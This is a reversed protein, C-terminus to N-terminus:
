SVYTHLYIIIIIIIIIIISSIASDEFFLPSSQYYHLVRLPEGPRCQCNRDLPRLLGPPPPSISSQGQDPRHDHTQLM